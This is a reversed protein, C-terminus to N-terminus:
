PGSSNSKLRSRTVALTESLRCRSCTQKAPGVTQHLTTDRVTHIIGTSMLGHLWRSAYSSHSCVTDCDHQWLQATRDYLHIINIDDLCVVDLKAVQVLHLLVAM